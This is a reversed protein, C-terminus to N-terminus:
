CVWVEMCFTPRLMKVWWPSFEGVVTTQCLRSPRKSDVAKWRRRKVAASFDNMQASDSQAHIEFASLVAPLFCCKITEHWLWHPPKYLSFGPFVKWISVPCVTPIIFLLLWFCGWSLKKIRFSQQQKKLLHQIMSVLDGWVDMGKFSM